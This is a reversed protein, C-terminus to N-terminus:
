VFTFGGQLKLVLEEMLLQTNMNANLKRKADLVITMQESIRKTSIQLAQSQWAEKQDPFALEEYNIGLYLLDKYILLLLDLARDVQSKEKFHQFFDEQLQVMGQFASKRLVDYLKLVIKRAQAFWEDNSLQLAEDFNNTLNSVLMAMENSVGNELLKEKVVKNPLPKFSLAQCRSLITPLIRHIQETILVATTESQPEELFKLLSNAANVTMKDAHIIAYFKKRSEVGTKSFEEQLSRIQDKKISLGDPEIIHVDPHNRNEIRKCNLCQLCPVGNQATECFLSKAFLISMEVKGTGREGEFIYAHAVRNRMISNSILQLVLPQIRKLEEWTKTM